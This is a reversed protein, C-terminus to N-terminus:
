TIIKKVIKKILFIHLYRLAILMFGKKEHPLSWMFKYLTAMLAGQEFTQLSGPYIRLASM